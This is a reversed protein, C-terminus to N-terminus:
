KSQAVVCVFRSCLDPSLIPRLYLITCRWIQRLTKMLSLAPSMCFDMTADHRPNYGHSVVCTLNQEVGQQVRPIEVLVAGVRHLRQPSTPMLLFCMLTSTTSQVRKLLWVKSVRCRGHINFTVILFQVRIELADANGDEAAKVLKCAYVVAINAQRSWKRPDKYHYM